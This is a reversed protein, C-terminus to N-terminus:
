EFDQVLDWGFEKCLRDLLHDSAHDVDFYTSGDNGDKKWKITVTADDPERHAIHICTVTSPDIGSEM